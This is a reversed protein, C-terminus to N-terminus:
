QFHGYFYHTKGNSMTMKGYSKTHKGSPIDGLSLAMYILNGNVHGHPGQQGPHLKVVASFKGLLVLHQL